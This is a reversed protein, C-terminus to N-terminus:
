NQYEVHQQVKGKLVVSMLEAVRNMGEVRSVCYVMISHCPSTRSYLSLICGIGCRKTVHKSFAGSPVTVYILVIDLM